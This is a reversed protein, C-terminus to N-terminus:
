GYQGPEISCIGCNTRRYLNCGGRPQGVQAGAVPRRGRLISQRRLELTPLSFRLIAIHLTPSLKRAANVGSCQEGFVPQYRGGLVREQPNRHVGRGEELPHIGLPVLQEDLADIGVRAEHRQVDFHQLRQPCAINKLSGVQFEEM